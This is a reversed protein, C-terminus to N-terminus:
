PNNLSDVAYLCNLIAHQAGSPELVDQQIMQLSSAPAAGDSRRGEPGGGATKSPYYSDVPGKFMTQQIHEIWFDPLYPFLAEVNPVACHVDSDILAPRTAVSGAGTAQAEIM